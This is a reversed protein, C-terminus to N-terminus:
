YIRSPYTLVSECVRCMEKYLKERREDGTKVTPAYVNILSLNFPKAQVRIAKFDMVRNMLKEMVM